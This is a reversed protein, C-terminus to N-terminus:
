KLDRAHRVENALAPSCIDELDRIAAAMQEILGGAAGNEEFHTRWQRVEGWIQKILALAHSRDPMFAAHGAIANNLTAVKGQPGVQLGLFRDHAVGPRPVVDYLPSLVWGPLRPDRLFGHNRLHDDSNSVFINFVMRAFLEECDRRIKAPAGYTRIAGALDAYSKNHAEFEHCGVLTMGSVFPLRSEVLSAEAKTLHLPSMADPLTGPKNWYRDFRRVLLVGHGGITVVNMPPVNMGCKAAMQLTLAEATAMDFADSRSPFKALCLVGAENRVTAKPRAGGSGADLLDALWAPLPEGAEVRDAADLLYTLSKVEAAPRTAPSDLDTRVDLAGVRESGAEVLYDSEPLSNAPVRRRAEIVRRGWADPAADRIAGFYPLRNVPFAEVGRMGEPDDLPLSVPDVEFRERRELYRTGYAFRSAQLEPGVETLTLRGAPVFGGPLWAFVYLQREAM